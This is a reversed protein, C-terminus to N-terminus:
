GRLIGRSVRKGAAVFPQAALSRLPLLSPRGGIPHRDHVRCHTRQTGEEHQRENRALEAEAREPSLCDQELRGERLVTRAVPQPVQGQVNMQVDLGMACVRVVIHGQVHVHRLVLDAPCSRPLENSRGRPVVDRRRCLNRRHKGNGRRHMWRRCCVREASALPQRQRDVPRQSGDPEPSSSLGPTIRRGHEPACSRAATM